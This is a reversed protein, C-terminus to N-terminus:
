CSGPSSMAPTVAKAAVEREHMPLKKPDAHTYHIQAQYNGTTQGIAHGCTCKM